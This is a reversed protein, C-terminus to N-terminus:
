KGLSVMKFGDFDQAHRLISAHLSQSNTNSVPHMQRELAAVASVIPAAFSTGTVGRPNGLGEVILNVGPAAIANDIADTLLARNNFNALEWTDDFSTKAAAAVPVLGYHVDFFHAPYHKEQDPYNGISTVVLTEKSMGTMDQLISRVIRDGKAVYGGFSMNIVDVTPMGEYRNRLYLLAKIISSSKCFGDDDCVKLMMLNAEPAVTEIIRTVISGHGDRFVTQPCDFGDSIDDAQASRTPYDPETFSRSLGALESTARFTRQSAVGGDFIAINAGQGRIHEPVGLMERLESVNVPLTLGTPAASAQVATDFDDCGPDFRHGGRDQAHERVEPAVARLMIKHAAHLVGRLETVAEGSSMGQARVTLLCWPLERGSRSIGSVSASEPQGFYDVIEFKAPLAAEVVDTDVCRILANTHVKERALTSSAEDVTSCASIVILCPIVTLLLKLHKM